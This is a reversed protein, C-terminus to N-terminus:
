CARELGNAARCRVGKGKVGVPVSENLSFVPYPPTAETYRQSGGHGIVVKGIRDCIGVEFTPTDEGGQVNSVVPLFIKRMLPALLEHLLHSCCQTIVDLPFSARLFISVQHGQADGLAERISQAQDTGDRVHRKEDVTQPVVESCTPFCQHPALYRRSYSLCEAPLCSEPRKMM